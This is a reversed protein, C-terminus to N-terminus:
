AFLRQALPSGAPIGAQEMERYFEGLQAAIDALMADPLPQGEDDVVVGSLRNALSKAFATMAKFGGRDPAVMAVPLLLTIQASSDDAANANISASFLQGGEGDPMVLKGDPRLEMGQRQLASKLTAVPWMAGTARVNISLQADFDHVRQHLARATAVAHGMDPLEPSAGLDDAMQDLRSALESFELETLAGSRTAMQVGIHLEHYVSGVAVPEWHGEDNQGVVKVPKSGVLHLHHFAQAVKEGRLPADLRVPIICDILPDLLSRRPAGAAITSDSHTISHDDSVDPTPHVAAAQPAHLAGSSSPEAVLDPAEFPSLVPEQRHPSGGEGMLVDDQATSFAQDVSKKARWEQWKNYAVVGAVIVGGIAILSQQLDVM